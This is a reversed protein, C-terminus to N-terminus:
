RCWRTSWTPPTWADGLGWRSWRRTGGWRAFYLFHLATTIEFTTLWDVQEIHPKIEALLTVLTEPPIPQGDMQIREAYDHL